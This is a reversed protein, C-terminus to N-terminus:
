IDFIIVTEWNGKENKRVEAEHYTVAKIDEDFGEVKEGGISVQLSNENLSMFDVTCFIAKEGQALTLVDSLFEVLLTTTDISEFSIDERLSGSSKSDCFDNKMISAMGEFASTFLEELTDGEIYLKIDSTHPLFKYSKM